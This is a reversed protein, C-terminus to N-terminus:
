GAVATELGVKVLERGHVDYQTVDFEAKSGHIHTQTAVRVPLGAAAEYLESYSGQDIGIWHAGAVPEIWAYALPKGDHTRCLVDLRPDLLRGAQRIGVSGGCWPPRREQAADTGGDCAYVTRGRSDTFTLSESFVGIREVVLTQPPFDGHGSEMTCRTFRRGLTRADLVRVQSIVSGEVPRFEAAPEGYLLRKPRSGHDCGAVFAVLLTVSALRAGGTARRMWDLGM